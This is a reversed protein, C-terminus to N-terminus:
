ATVRLEFTATDGAQEFITIAKEPDAMFGAFDDPELLAAELLYFHGGGPFAFLNDGNARIFQVIEPDDAVFSQHAAQPVAQEQNWASPASHAHDAHSMVSASM